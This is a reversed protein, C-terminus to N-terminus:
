IKRIKRMTTVQLFSAIGVEKWFNWEQDHNGKSNKLLRSNNETKKKLQALANPM